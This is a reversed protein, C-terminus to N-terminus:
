NIIVKQIKLLSGVVVRVIYVGASLDSAIKTYTGASTNFSEQSVIQGKSDSILIDASAAEIKAFDVNIIKDIGSIYIHGEEKGKASTIMPTYTINLYFRAANDGKAINFTYSPEIALDVRKHLLSDILTEEIGYEFSELNEATITYDGSQGVKLALPVVDKKYSGPISNISYKDNNYLSYFSAVNDGNMMKYADYLGDFHNTSQDVIRVITEDNVLGNSVKLKLVNYDSESRWLSPSSGASTVRTASTMGFAVSKDSTGSTDVRVWFAQM